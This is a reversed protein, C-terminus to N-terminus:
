SASGSTAAHQSKTGLMDGFDTANGTTAMTIYELVNVEGSYSSNVGGNRVARTANHSVASMKSNANVLDGFDTANGTTQITVYDIINTGNGGMFIGYTGDSAAGTPSRAQTLDGFDAATSYTGMEFYNINVNTTESTGNTHIARTDDNTGALNRGQAYVSGFETSNAATQITVYEIASQALVFYGYTGDSHDSPGYHVSSSTGFNGFATANGTTSSTIYEISDTDVGGAILCRSGDSVAAPSGRRNTILDGFDATDGTTTIDFYEIRNNLSGGVYGGWIIGRDGYYATTVPNVHTLQKFEGNIYTYYKDNATDFWVDGSAPSSPETGSATYAFGALGSDSGGSNLGYTFNPAGSGASNTIKEFEADSM